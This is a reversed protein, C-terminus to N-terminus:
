RTYWIAHEFEKAVNVELAKPVSASLFRKEGEIRWEVHIMGKPTIVDGVAWQM